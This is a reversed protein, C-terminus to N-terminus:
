STMQLMNHLLDDPLLFILFHFIKSGWWFGSTWIKQWLLIIIWLSRTVLKLSPVAAVSHAKHFYTMIPKWQWVAATPIHALNNWTAKSLLSSAESCITLFCSNGGLQLPPHSPQTAGRSTNLSETISVSLCCYNKAKQPKSWLARSGARHRTCMNNRQHSGVWTGDRGKTQVYSHRGPFTCCEWPSAELLPGSHTLSIPALPPKLQLAAVVTAKIPFIDSSSQLICLGAVRCVVVKVIQIM